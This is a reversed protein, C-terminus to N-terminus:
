EWDLQFDAIKTPALFTRWRVQKQFNTPSSPPGQIAACRCPLYSHSINFGSTKGIFYM